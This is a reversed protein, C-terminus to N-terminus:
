SVDYPLVASRKTDAAAAIVISCREPEDTCDVRGGGDGPSSPSGSRSTTTGGSFVGTPDAVRVTTSAAVKTRVVGNADAYRHTESVDRLLIASVAAESDEPECAQIPGVEDLRDTCWAVLVPEGPVFGTATVTIKRDPAVPGSPSGVIPLHDSKPRNPRAVLPVAPLGPRFSITRGGSQNYNSAAAVVLLCRKPRSACDYARDGITITRRVGFSVDLHGHGDTAYRSGSVTDCADIGRRKTDAERLCQTVGVVEKRDFATDSTVQVRVSSGDTLGTTPTVTVPLHVSRTGKGPDAGLEFNCGHLLTAAVGVMVVVAVAFGGLCGVAGVKDATRDTLRM